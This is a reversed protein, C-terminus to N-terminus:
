KKKNQNPTVSLVRRWAKMKDAFNKVADGRMQKAENDFYHQLKAMSEVRYKCSKHIVNKNIEVGSPGSSLFEADYITCSKFGDIKLMEQAHPVIWKLWDDVISKDLELNVEYIVEGAAPADAQKNEAAM